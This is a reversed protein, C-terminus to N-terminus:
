YVEQQYCKECYVIESRDSAYSTEFENQCGEKMCKRHWLKLPNRQKLRQYHRCNPCLRPLPLSMRKYFKFESEIIKFAETCQESCKGKHECEIVKGIINDKVDKIDNPINGNEIDLKYSREEREKWQYGQDLAETKILPFYEQALTENYSFPSLESPFFEGYRYIRGKSDIYPMDNMHKIIKPILEEYEEKTYQKNLICYSKNKLGVCGFLHSSDFCEMSYEIDSIHVQRTKLNKPSVLWSFKVGYGGGEEIEYCLEGGAVTMDYSDKGPQFLILQCFKCNEMERCFFSYHTNKSHDLYDGNVNNNNQGHAYRFPFNLYHNMSKEKMEKVVECSGLNIKKIFKEYKEKTYQENFFCYQKHRLNICGFCDHCNVLNQSFYVESCQSCDQSFFVRSCKECDTLEYSLESGVVKTSDFIENSKLIEVGYACSESFGSNFLLYCNKLDVVNNCYYSNVSQLNYGSPWPIRLMLEKLQEFFPKSFDYSKGEKMADWDGSWWHNQEYIIFPSNKSFFSFVESDAGIVKRKYVTRANRFSMRRIMRCESCFTPPPVKMKEYFKFDDPKITFDKKCNQCNKTEDQM